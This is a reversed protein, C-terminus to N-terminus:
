RPIVFEQDPYILDAEQQGEKLEADFKTQWSKITETNAKYIDTWKFPDNYIDEKGSIKWLNDGKKVVYSTIYPVVISGRISKIRSDLSELANVFETLKAKKDIGLEDVKAAFTDLETQRKFLEENPLAGFSKVEREFQDLMSRFAAVAEADGAVMAYIENWTNDISGQTAGIKSKLDAIKTDETKINKDARALREQQKKLKPLYEKEYEMEKPASFGSFAFALVALSIVMKKM